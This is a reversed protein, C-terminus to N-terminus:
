RPWWACHCHPIAPDGLAGRYRPLVDFCPPLGKPWEYKIPRGRSLRPRDPRLVWTYPEPHGLRFVPFALSVHVFQKSIPSRGLATWQDLGHITRYGREEQVAASIGSAALQTCHAADRDM